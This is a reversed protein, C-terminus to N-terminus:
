GDTEEKELSKDEMMSRARRHIILFLILCMCSIAFAPFFPMRIRVVRAALAVGFGLGALSLCRVAYKRALAFTVDRPHSRVRLDMLALDWGYLTASVCVLPILPPAKMFASLACLFATSGLCATHFAKPWRLAIALGWLAALAIGPVAIALDHLSFAGWSLAILGSIILVGALPRM